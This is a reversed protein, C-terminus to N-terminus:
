LVLINGQLFFIALGFTSSAILSVNSYDRGESVDQRHVEFMYKDREIVLQFDPTIGNDILVPLSSGCAILVVKNQNEKLWDISESLSPGSACIAVPM